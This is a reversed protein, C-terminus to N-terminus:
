APHAYIWPHHRQQQITQPRGIQQLRRIRGRPSNLPGPIQGNYAWVATTGHKPGLLAAQSLAPVLQYDASAAAWAARSGAAAVIIAAGARLLDRRSVPLSSDPTV